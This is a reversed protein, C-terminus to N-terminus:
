GQECVIKIVTADKSLAEEVLRNIRDLARQYNYFDGCTFLTNTVKEKAVPQRAADKGAEAPATPQKEAGKGADPKTVEAPAAPKEATGKVADSKGAETTATPQEATGKVTDPKATETPAVPQETAAKVTDPKGAEASAEVPREAVNKGADLKATETSAAPQEATDKVADLKSAEATAVTPKEEAGKGTDAKGSEAQAAPQSSAAEQGKRLQRIARVSMDPTVKQQLEAPMGMMAVLQSASYNSYCEEIDELIEGNSDRKAYNDIISILNCCTTKGLGCEKEAYEYVNKYNGLRYMNHNRIWHLQFGISVFSRQINRMQERIINAREKFEQEIRMMPSLMATGSSAAPIAQTPPEQGSAAEQQPEPGADAAGAPVKADKEPTGAAEKPQVPGQAKPADAKETGLAKDEKRATATGPKKGKKKDMPLVKSAAEEAQEAAAEARVEAITVALCEKPSMRTGGVAAAEPEMAAAKAAKAGNMTKKEKVM